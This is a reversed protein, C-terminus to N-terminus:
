SLVERYLELIGQGHMFMGKLDLLACVILLIFQTHVEIFYSSFCLHISPEIFAPQSARSLDISCPPLTFTWIARVPM